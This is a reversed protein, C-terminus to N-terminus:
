SATIEADNKKLLARVLNQVQIIDYGLGISVIDLLHKVFCNEEEKSLFPKPGVKADLTLNRIVKEGLAKRGVGFRKATGRLSDDPHKLQYDVAEKMKEGQNGCSYNSRRKEQLNEQAQNRLPDQVSPRVEANEADDSVKVLQGPASGDQNSLLNEPNQFPNCVETQTIQSSLVQPSPRLSTTSSELPAPPNLFSLDSNQNAKKISKKMLVKRKSGDMGSPFLLDTTEPQLDGSPKVNVPFDYFDNNM